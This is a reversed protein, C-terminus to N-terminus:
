FGLPHVSSMAQPVSESQREAAVGEVEIAAQPQGTAYVKRVSLEVVQSDDNWLVGKMADLSGRALKDLDPKKLHAIVSKSLSKPRPLAFTIRVAVPGEFFVGAAREQIAARVSDEWGKLSKNDSTTVTGIVPKGNKVLSNGGADKRYFGFSKSSGKPRAIGYVTFALTM